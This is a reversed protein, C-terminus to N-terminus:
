AGELKDSEECDTEQERYSEGTTLFLNIFLKFDIALDGLVKFEVILVVLNDCCLYKLVLDVHSIKEEGGTCGDARKHFSQHVAYIFCKFISRHM